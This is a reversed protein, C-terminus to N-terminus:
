DPVVAGWRCIGWDGGQCFSALFLAEGQDRVRPGAIAPRAPPFASSDDIANVIDTCEQLMKADLLADSTSPTTTPGMGQSTSSYEIATKTCDTNCSDRGVISFAQVPESSLALLTHAALGCVSDGLHQVHKGGSTSSVSAVSLPSSSSLFNQSARRGPMIWPVAASTVSINALISGSTSLRATSSESSNLTYMYACDDVRTPAKSIYKM